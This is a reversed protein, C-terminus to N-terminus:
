LVHITQLELVLCDGAKLAEMVLSLDSWVGNMPLQFGIEAGANCGEGSFRMVWHRPVGVDGKMATATAVPTIKRLQPGDDIIGYGNVVDRVLKATWDGPIVLALAGVYDGEAVHDVWHRVAEILDADSADLPLRLRNDGISGM